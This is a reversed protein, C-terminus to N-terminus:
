VLASGTVVSVIVVCWVGTIPAVLIIIVLGIVRVMLGGLKWVGTLGTVRLGCPYRGIPIM